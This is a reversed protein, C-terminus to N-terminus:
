VRCEPHASTFDDWDTFKEGKYSVKGVVEPSGSWLFHECSKQIEIATEGAPVVIRGDKWTFMGVAGVKVNPRKASGTGPYVTGVEFDCDKVILAKTGGPWAMDGAGPKSEPGSDMLLAGTARGRLAAHLDKNCGLRVTVRNMTITSDKMGGRFTYASGGGGQELCVDEVAEGEVVVDGYGEPMDDDVEKMRNVIQLATRGCWAFGNSGFYHNGQINHFYRAHEDACGTYFLGTETWGGTLYHHGLWKNPLPKNNNVCDWGGDITLPGNIWIGRAGGPGETKIAARSCAMMRGGQGQIILDRVGSKLLLTDSSGVEPERTVTKGNLGITVKPAGKARASKKLTLRGIDEDLAIATGPAASLWANQVQQSTM